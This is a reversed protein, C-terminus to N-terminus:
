YIAIVKWMLKINKLFYYKIDILVKNYDEDYDNEFIVKLFLKNYKINENEYYKVKRYINLKEEQSLANKLSLKAVNDLYALEEKKLKIFEEKLKEINM